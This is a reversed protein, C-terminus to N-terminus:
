DFKISANDRIRNGPKGSQMFFVRVSLILQILASSPFYQRRFFTGLIGFIYMFSIIGRYSIVLPALVFYSHVSEFRLFLILALSVEIRLKRNM